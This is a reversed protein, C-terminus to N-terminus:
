QTYSHKNAWNKTQDEFQENRRVFQSVFMSHIMKQWKIGIGKLFVYFCKTGERSVWFNSIRHVLLAKLAFYFANKMMKLPTENELSQRLGSLAGEITLSLLLKKRWFCSLSHLKTGLYLHSYTPLSSYLWWLPHCNIM